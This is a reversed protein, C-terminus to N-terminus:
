CRYQPRRQRFRRASTGLSGIAAFWIAIIFALMIAYKVTTPGDESRLFNLTATRLHSLM